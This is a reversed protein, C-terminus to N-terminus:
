KRLKNYECLCQNLPKKCVKCVPIIPEPLKKRDPM